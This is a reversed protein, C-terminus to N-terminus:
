ENSKRKINKYIVIPFLLINIILLFIIFPGKFFIFEFAQEFGTSLDDLFKEIDSGNIYKFKMM